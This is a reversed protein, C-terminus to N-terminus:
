RPQIDVNDDGKRMPTDSLVKGDLWVIRRYQTNPYYDHVEVPIAGNFVYPKNDVDNM